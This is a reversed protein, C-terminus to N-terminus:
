HTIPEEYSKTESHSDSDVPEKPKEVPASEYKFHKNLIHASGTGVGIISRMAEEGKVDVHRLQHRKVHYIFGSTPNPGTPVFVTVYDGITEDTMFATTLTDTGYLDVLVVKFLNMNSNGLLQHVAERLTGYYPLKFLIRREIRDVWRQGGNTSVLLGVLFCLVVLFVFAFLDVLLPYNFAEYADSLGLLPKAIGSISYFLFSVLLYFLGLPLLVVLGGILTTKLFNTTGDDRRM